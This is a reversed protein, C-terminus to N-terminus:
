GPGARSPSARVSPEVTPTPNPGRDTPKPSKRTRTPEPTAPDTPVVTETAIPTATATPSPPASSGATATRLPRTDNDNDRDDDDGTRSSPVGSRTSGGFVPEPFDRFEVGNLADDTYEGWIRAPVRGGTGQDGLSEEGGYNGIWVATSLQPTYGVFWANKNEQTTGTKGAAPREGDLRARKGTGDEGYIVQRMAYTADAAVQPSFARSQQRRATYLVVGDSNTVKTVLHPSSAQGNAAFTAFANAQDLPSVEYTGLVISPGFGRNNKSMHNPSEHQKSVGAAYAMDAIRKGTLKVALQAYVTNISRETAEILTCRPCQANGSNRVTEGDGGDWGEVDLPATGRFRTRVSMGDQLAAALAFPKFSSGPQKVAQTALNFSAGNFTGTYDRGGYMARIEGSGPQVSVLGGVFGADPGIEETMTEIAAAQAKRDITTQIRLGGLDVRENDVGHRALEDRVARVVHGNPGALANRRGGTRTPPMRLEAAQEPTLWKEGVMGNIVYKWRGAAREPHDAPDYLAPSRLSSALVAGQAVTLKEVPVGFYSEAAAQIGLAGRGFYVTNLYDRLIEDKTRARDLKVAIFIEQFKRSFTREATLHANKVYQQTITSGGESIEGGRLNALAARAIGSPSIGPESYYNRDEAALVAQRVHLPVQDLRVLRRNVTGIRGIESGDSYLISSTQKDVDPNKEPMETLAYVMVLAVIGLLPVGLLTTLM